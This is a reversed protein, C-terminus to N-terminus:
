FININVGNKCHLYIDCTLMANFFLQNNIKLPLSAMLPLLFATSCNPQFAINWKKKVFFHVQHIVTSMSM